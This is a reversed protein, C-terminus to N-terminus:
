PDLQDLIGLRPRHYAVKRITYPELMLGLLPEFEFYVETVLLTEGDALTLAAPLAAPGDVEGVGSAAVLDGAGARQWNVTPGDDDDGSVSTVIAVGNGEFDFPEMITGLAFYIDNLKSVSIRQDRGVLDALVFASNQLKQSLLVMRGFEAAGTFLVVLVPLLFAFEVAVIGATDRWLRDLCAGAKWRRM